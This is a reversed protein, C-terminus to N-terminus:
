WAVPSVGQLVKIAEEDGAARKQEYVKSM